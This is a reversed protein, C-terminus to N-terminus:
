PGRQRLHRAITFGTGHDAADHGFDLHDRSLQSDLHWDRDVLADGAGFLHAFVLGGHQLIELRPTRHFEFGDDAGDHFETFAQSYGHRVRPGYISTGPKQ